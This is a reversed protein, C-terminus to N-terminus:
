EVERVFYVNDRQTTWLYIVVSIARNGGLSESKLYRGIPLEPANKPEDANNALSLIAVFQVQSHLSSKVLVM